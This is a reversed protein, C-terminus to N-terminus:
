RILHIIRIAMHIIKRYINKEKILKDAEVALPHVCEKEHYLRNNEAKLEDNEALIEKVTIPIVEDQLRQHEKEILELRTNSMGGMQFLCITYPVYEFTKGNIAFTIWKAWDAYLTFSEDYPSQKLCDSKIFMAQHCINDSFIFRLSLKKPANMLVKKEKDHWQIWDGYIVDTSHPKGFVHALVESDYFVDGSNLFIIYQGKAVAIGKNMANYPGKDAESCWYSMESSHQEIYERDGQTSGGDIVIWEWNTYSQSLISKHTRKFGELNNFNVTVISVNM